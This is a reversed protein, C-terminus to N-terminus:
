NTLLSFHWRVFEAEVADTIQVHAQGVKKESKWMRFDETQMSLVEVPISRPEKIVTCVKLIM